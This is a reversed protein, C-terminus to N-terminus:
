DHIHTHIIVYMIVYSDIVPMALYNYVCVRTIM